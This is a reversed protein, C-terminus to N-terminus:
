RKRSVKEGERRGAKNRKKLEHTEEELFPGLRPGNQKAAGVLIGM